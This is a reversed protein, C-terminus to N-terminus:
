TDELGRSAADKLIYVFSISPFCIPKTWVPQKLYHSLAECGLAMLVLTLKEDSFDQTM